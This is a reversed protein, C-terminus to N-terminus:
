EPEREYSLKYNFAESNSGGATLVARIAPVSEAGLCSGLSLFQYKCLLDTPQISDAEVRAVQLRPVHATCRRRRNVIGSDDTIAHCKKPLLHIPLSQTSCTHMVTREQTSDCPIYSHITDMSFDDTADLSDISTLSSSHALSPTPLDPPEQIADLLFQVSRSKARAFRRRRETANLHQPATDGADPPAPHSSNLSLPELDTSRIGNVSAEKFVGDANVTNDHTHVQERQIPHDVPVVSSSETLSPGEAALDVGGGEEVSATRVVGRRVLVPTGAASGSESQSDESDSSSGFPLDFSRKCTLKELRHRVTIAELVTYMSECNADVPRKSRIKDYSEQQVVTTLFAGLFPICSSGLTLHQQLEARYAAWNNEESVVGSLKRFCRSFPGFTGYLGSVEFALHNSLGM